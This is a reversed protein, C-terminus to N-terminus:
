WVNLCGRLAVWVGSLVCVWAVPILDIVVFSSFRCACTTVAEFCWLVRLLWFLRFM